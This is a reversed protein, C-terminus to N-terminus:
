TPPAILKDFDPNPRGRAALSDRFAGRIDTATHKIASVVEKTVKAAEKVGEKTLKEAEGLGEKALKKTEGVGEKALKETEHLLKTAEAEVGALSLGVRQTPEVAKGTATNIVVKALEKKAADLAGTDRAVKSAVKAAVALEPNTDEAVKVATKVARRAAKTLNFGVPPAHAHARDYEIEYQDFLLKEEDTLEIPCPVNNVRLQVAMALLYPFCKSRYSDIEQLELFRPDFGAQIELEHQTMPANALWETVRPQMSAVPEAVSGFPALTCVTNGVLSTAICLVYPHGSREGNPDLMGKLLGRAEVPVRRGLFPLVAGNSFVVFQVPKAM